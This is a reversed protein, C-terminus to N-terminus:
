ILGIDPKLLHSKSAVARIGLSGEPVRAVDFAAKFSFQASWNAPVRPMREKRRKPPSPLSYHM